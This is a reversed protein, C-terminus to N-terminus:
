QTTNDCVSEKACPFPFEATERAASLNFYSLIVPPTHSFPSPFPGERGKWPTLANQLHGHGASHTCCMPLETCRLVWLCPSGGISTRDRTDCISYPISCQFWTCSFWCRLPHQVAWLCRASPHVICQGCGALESVGIFRQADWLGRLGRCVEPFM